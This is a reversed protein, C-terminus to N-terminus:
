SFFHRRLERDDGIDDSTILIVERRLMCSIKLLGIVEECPHPTVWVSKQLQFFGLRKITRRLYDRDRKRRECVDFVVVRWKGDWRRNQLAAIDGLAYQALRKRGDETLELYSGKDVTVRRLLNRRELRDFVTKGYYTRRKGIMGKLLGARDLAVLLNPVAMAAVVLGITAVVHLAM